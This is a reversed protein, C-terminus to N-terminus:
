PSPPRADPRCRGPAAGAVPGPRWRATCSEAVAASLSAAAARKRAALRLHFLAAGGQGADAYELARALHQRVAEEAAPPLADQALRTRVQSVGLRVLLAHPDAPAPRPGQRGGHGTARGSPPSAAASRGTLPGSGATTLLDALAALWEHRYTHM